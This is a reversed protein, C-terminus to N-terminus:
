KGRTFKQEATSGSHHLELEGKKEIYDSFMEFGSWTANLAGLKM